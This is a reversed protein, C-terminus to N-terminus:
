PLSVSVKNIYQRQGYGPQGSVPLVLRFDAGGNQRNSFRANGLLFRYRKWTRSNTTTITVPHLTWQGPIADYQLRLAAAPGDWYEVEVSAPSGTMGYAVHDAINFYMYCDEVANLNTRCEKGGISTSVTDGDAVAVRSLYNSTDSNGMDCTAQMVQRVKVQNLYQRTGYGLAGPTPYVIRFDSGGNQRNAFLADALEFRYRKWTGSNQTIIEDPHLKWRDSVSDYQLMIRSAPGDWYEIEVTIDGDTLEYAFNDSVKFYAYHDSGPNLNGRCDTGGVSAVTTDGDAVEVRSVSGSADTAGLNIYAEPGGNSPNAVEADTLPVLSWQQSTSSFLASQVVKSGNAMGNEGLFRGSWVNRILYKNLFPVLEWQQGGGLAEPLDNLRAYEGAQASNVSVAKGLSMRSEFANVNDELEHLYWMGRSTYQDDRVELLTGNNNGGCVLMKGSEANKLKYVGAPTADSIEIDDFWAVFPGTEAGHDYAILIRDITKGELWQGVNCVTREWKGVTGKRQAPHMRVGAQNVAQTDRLNTGDTMIFDLSVYRGLNNEPCKWFSLKTNSNVPINVDFVRFYCHSGSTGQDEGKCVISGRGKHRTGDLVQACIPASDYPYPGVKAKWDVSNSWTLHIPYPNYPPNSTADCELGTRFSQAPENPDEDYLESFRIDKASFALYGAGTPYSIENQVSILVVKYRAPDTPLQAAPYRANVDNIANVLQARSITFGFPRYSDNWTQATSASSMPTTTCYRTSDGYKFYSNVWARNTGADWGFFETEPTWRSDFAHVQHWFGRKQWDKKHVPDDLSDVLLISTNVYGCPGGALWPKPNPEFYSSPVKLRIQFQLKSSSNRAWPTPTDFENWWYAVQINALDYNKVSGGPISPTHLQGGVTDNTVQVSTAGYWQANIGRQFDGWPAPSQCGSFDGVQWNTVAQSFASSTCGFSAMFLKRRPILEEPPGAFARDSINQLNEPAYYVHEASWASDLYTLAAFLLAATLHSRYFRQSINSCVRSRPACAEQIILHGSDTINPTNVNNM